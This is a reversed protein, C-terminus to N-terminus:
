KWIVFNELNFEKKPGAEKEPYGIACGEVSYEGKELGLLLMFDKNKAMNGTFSVLQFGLGLSTATLWMNELAHAMSQKGVPPFGKKEAIVIFYPAESLSPIGNKSMGNLRNSFAKLKKKLFPMIILIARFIRANRNIQLQILERLKSMNQTDQKFIFIKRIQSLPIGTAGAYPAYIASELIRALEGDKVTKSSFSRTSRRNKIACELAEKNEM